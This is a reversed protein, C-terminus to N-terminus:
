KLHQHQNHFKGQDRESQRSKYHIHLPLQIIENKDEYHM